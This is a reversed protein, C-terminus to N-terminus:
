RLYLSQCEHMMIYILLFCVQLELTLSIVSVYDDAVKIDEYKGTSSEVLALKHSDMEELESGM